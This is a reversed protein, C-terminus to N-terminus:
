PKRNSVIIQKGGTKVSGLLPYLSYDKVIEKQFSNLDYVTLKDTIDAYGKCEVKIDYIGPILAMVYHGTRKVPRFYLREKTKTNVTTILTNTPKISNVAAVNGTVFVFRQRNNFTIKYIDLDGKSDERLRSIYAAHHDKTFSICRDDGTTNIPYGLNRSVSWANNDPDIWLSEFLDYDGMNYHGQSSFYLSTSDNDFWPFDENYSTNINVGLNQPNGWNGNPLKKIMYIDTGGFGGERESAFFLIKGDGSIDGASQFAENVIDPYLIMKNFSNGKRESYYLKGDHKINDIYIVLACGSPDLGVAEEDKTTNIQEGISRAKQWTGNIAHSIFIDSSYYGDMEVHMANMDPRRTTFILMSEDCSVLPYYDPYPSNIDNGLNTFSINLPHKVLVEATKCEEIRKAVKAKNYNNASLKYKNFSNIADKFRNAYQYATGLDYWLENDFKPQKIVWELYPIAQKKDVQTKLYCLGLKYHYDINNPYLNLLKKYVPLAENYNGAEYYNDAERSDIFRGQAHISFPLFWTSILAIITIKKLSM